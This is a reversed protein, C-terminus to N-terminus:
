RAALWIGYAILAWFSALFLLAALLIAADRM